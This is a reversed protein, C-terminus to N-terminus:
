PPSGPHMPGCVRRGSDTASVLGNYCGNDPRAQRPRPLPRAAKMRFSARTTRAVVVVIRARRWRHRTGALDGRGRGAGAGVGGLVQSGGPDLHTHSVANGPEDANTRRQASAVSQVRAVGGVAFRCSSVGWRGGAPCGCPTRPHMCHGGLGGACRRSPKARREGSVTLLVLLGPAWGPTPLMQRSKM